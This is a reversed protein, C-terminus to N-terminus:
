REKGFFRKLKSLFPKHKRVGPENRLPRGELFCEMDQTMLAAALYRENKKRRMAREIIRAAKEPIQPMLTRIAEPATSEIIDLVEDASKGSYPCRGSVLEYLVAGLSYIDSLYDVQEMDGIAQEPPMYFPTGMIVGKVYAADGIKAVKALGFDMLWPRGNEDVIINGPKIDRHYIGRDHAYSTARILPLMLNFATRVSVTRGGDSAKKDSTFEDQSLLTTQHAQGADGTQIIEDLTTGTVLKMTYFFHTEVLGFDLIPIINDHKLDAAARTENYFRKIDEADGYPTKVGAATDSEHPLLKLAVIKNLDRQWAKYVIGTGGRGIEDVLIYKGFHNKPDRSAVKVEEPLEIDLQDAAEDLATQISTALSAFLAPVETGCSPCTYKEPAEGASNGGIAAGCEPCSYLSLDQIQLATKVADPKLYGRRIMIEGLMPVPRLGMEVLRGQLRLCENVQYESALGKDALIKGFLASRPPPKGPEAHGMGEKQLNLLRSVDDKRLYGRQIMIEGLTRSPNREQAQLCDYLQETTILSERLAIKGILHQSQEAM